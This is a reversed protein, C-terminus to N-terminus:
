TCALSCSSRSGRMCHALIALYPRLRPEGAEYSHLGLSPPIRLYVPTTPAGHHDALYYGVGGKRHAVIVLSPPRGKDKTRRGDPLVRIAHIHNHEVKTEVAVSVFADVRREDGLLYPSTLLMHPCVFQRAEWNDRFFRIGNQIISQRDKGYDSRLCFNTDAWYINIPKNFEKSGEVPHTSLPIGYAYSTTATKHKKRRKKTRQRDEIRRLKGTKLGESNKKSHCRRRKELKSPTTSLSCGHLRRFGEWRPSRDSQSSGDLNPFGDSRPSGDPALM